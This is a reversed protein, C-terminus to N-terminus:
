LTKEKNNILLQKLDTAENAMKPINYNFWGMYRLAYDAYEKDSNLPKVKQTGGLTGSRAENWEYINKAARIWEPDKRLEAESLKKQHLHINLNHINM